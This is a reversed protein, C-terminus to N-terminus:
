NCMTCKCCPEDCDEPFDDCDFDVQGNCSPPLSTCTLGDCQPDGACVTEACCGPDGCDGAGCPCCEVTGPFGGMTVGHTGEPCTAVDGSGQPCVCASDTIQCSQQCAPDTLCAFLDFCGPLHNCNLDDPGACDETTPLQEGPCDSPWSSSTCTQTGAHCAGVDLTGTPGDYCARTMGDTCATDCAPDTACTPDDCDIRGDCSEDVGGTCVEAGPTTAGTCAGYTPIEGTAECAQTGDTCIGVGRTAPDASKPYCTRPGASTDCPCGVHDPDQDGCTPTSTDADPMAAPGDITGVGGDDGAGHSTPGCAAVVLSLLVIVRRSM